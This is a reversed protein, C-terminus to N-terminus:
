LRPAIELLDGPPLGGLGPGRAAPVASSNGRWTRVQLSVPPSEPGGWLAVAAVAPMQQRAMQSEAVSRARALIPVSAVAVVAVATAVHISVPM